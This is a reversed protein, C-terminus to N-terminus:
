QELMLDEQLSCGQFGLPHLSGGFMTSQRAFHRNHEAVFREVVVPIWWGLMLFLPRRDGGYDSHSLLFVTFSLCVAKERKRSLVPVVSLSVSGQDECLVSLVGLLTSSTSCKNIVTLTYQKEKKKEGAVHEWM